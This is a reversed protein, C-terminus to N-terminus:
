GRAATQTADSSQLADDTKSDMLKFQTKRDSLYIVVFIGMQVVMFMGGVLEVNWDYYCACMALLLISPQTFTIISRRRVLPLSVVAPTKLRANMLNFFSINTLGLLCVLWWMTDNQVRGLLLMPLCELLGILFPFLVDLLDIQWGMDRAVTFHGFTVMVVMLFETVVFPWRDLAHWQLVTLSYIFVGFAVAQILMTLILYAIRSFWQKNSEPLSGESPMSNM